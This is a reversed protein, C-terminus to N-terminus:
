HKTDKPPCPDNGYSDRDRIKGDLGHIFVEGREGIAQERAQDIAALQTSHHSSDRSAAERRVAWGSQRQVVHLNSRKAM